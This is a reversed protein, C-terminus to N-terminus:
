CDYSAGIVIGESTPKLKIVTGIIPVPRYGKRESYTPDGGQVYTKLYTGGVILWRLRDIVKQGRLQQYAYPKVNLQHDHGYLYIDADYDAMEKEYRTISAGGTRGGGGYGHHYRVIVSRGRTNGKEHLYVRIFGSYGLYPIGLRRCIRKIPNTGGRKIPTWEHNGLGIGIFRKAYSELIECGWDVQEDIIESNRSRIADSGKDYRTDSFVIGDFLDGLSL